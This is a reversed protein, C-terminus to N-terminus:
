WLWRDRQVRGLAGVLAKPCTKGTSVSESAKSSNPPSPAVTHTTYLVKPLRPPPNPHPFTPPHSTPAPRTPSTTSCSPPSTPPPSASIASCYLLDAFTPSCSLLRVSVVDLGKEYDVFEVGRGSGEELEELLGSLVTKLSTKTSKEHVNRVWLICGKPFAGRKALAEESDPAVDDGLPEPTGPRGQRKGGPVSVSARRAKKSPREEKTEHDSARKGKKASSSHHPPQGYNDERDRAERHQDARSPRPPSLSRRSRQQYAHSKRARDHSNRLTTLHHQYDLYEAKLDLWRASHIFLTLKGPSPSRAFLYSM